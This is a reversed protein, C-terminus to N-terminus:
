AAWGMAALETAELTLLASLQEVTTNINSSRTGHTLQETVEVNGEKPDSALVVLISRLESPSECGFVRNGSTWVTVQERRPDRRSVNDLVDGPVLQLLRPSDGCSQGGTAGRVRIRVRGVAVEDWPSAAVATPRDGCLGERATLMVLDGRRWETPLGPLGAAMLANQEFPPSFYPLAGPERWTVELGWIRARRLAAENEDSVGPRTGEAPLSILVTAGDRALRSAAWLFLQEYEGYWPPDLFVVPAAVEPLRDRGVDCLLAEFDRRATFAEVVARNSDLLTAPVRERERLAWFVTPAGVVVVRAGDSRQECEAVLRELAAGSFRWDYDLPHPVPLHAAPVIGTRPACARRRLQGAVSSELEGRAALRDVADRVDTPYVGPLRCVLDDLSAGGGARIADTVWRDVQELFSRDGEM